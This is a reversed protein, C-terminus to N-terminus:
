CRQITYVQSDASNVKKDMDENAVQFEQIKQKKTKIELDLEIAIDPLLSLMNVWDEPTFEFSFKPKEKSSGSAVKRQQERKALKDFEIWRKMEQQPPGEGPGVELKLMELQM